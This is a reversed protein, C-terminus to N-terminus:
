ADPRATVPDATMYRGVADEPLTEFEVVEWDSCFCRSTSFRRKVAHEPQDLWRVLDTSSLVGVCRGTEDIVPAGSVNARALTHAAARLSTHRPIAIVERSMLDEATLELLPRTEVM